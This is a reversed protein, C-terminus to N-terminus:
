RRKKAVVLAVAIMVGVVVAGGGAGILIWAWLPMEEKAPADAAVGTTPATDDGDGETPVTTTPAETTTTTPAETTTTPAKTTTTPGANATTLAMYFNDIYIKTGVAVHKETCLYFAGGDSYFQKGSEPVIFTYERTQWQRGVFSNDGQVHIMSGNGTKPYWEGYNKIGLLLFPYATGSNECDFYIDLRLTLTDGPQLKGYSELIKGQGDPHMGILGSINANRTGLELVNSHTGEGYSLEDTISGVGVEYRFINKANEGEFDSEFLVITQKGDEAAAPLATPLLLLLALALSAARIMTKKM